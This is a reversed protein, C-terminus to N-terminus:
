VFINRYNQCILADRVADRLTIQSADYTQDGWGYVGFVIRNLAAWVTDPVEFGDGNCLPRMLPALCLSFGHRSHRTRKTLWASLSAIWSQRLPSLSKRPPAPSVDRRRQVEEVRRRQGCERENERAKEVTERSKKGGRGVNGGAIFPRGRENDGGCDGAIRGEVEV